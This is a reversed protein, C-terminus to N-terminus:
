AAAKGPRGKGPPKEAPPLAADLRKVFARLIGASQPTERIPLGLKLFGTDRRAEWSPKGPPHVFGEMARRDFEPHFQVTVANDGYALMQHPDHDSSALVQASKPPDLVAQSHSLNAPFSKPLGKLLPNASPKVKLHIMHTGQEMGLPHYDVHGGLAYALLQHGYCVGFLPLGDDMIKLLLGQLRVSWNPRDTVMSLSGTVIVGGYISPERPLTMKVADTVDCKRPDVRGLRMFLDAFSENLGFRLPIPGCSLILLKKM